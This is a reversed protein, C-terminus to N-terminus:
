RNRELEFVVGGCSFINSVNKKTKIPCVLNQSLKPKPSVMLVSSNSKEQLNVM